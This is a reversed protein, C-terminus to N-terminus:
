SNAIGISQTWRSAEKAINSNDMGMGTLWEAPAEFGYLTATPYTPRNVTKQVLVVLDVNAANHRETLYQHAFTATGGKDLVDDLIIVTRNDASTTPLLDAILEPTRDVREDGYTKITMYDLEPHFEPDHKTIAFMLQTAFPAGGRLLCVFLPNQNKYRTIIEQALEDIRQTVQSSTHLITDPTM